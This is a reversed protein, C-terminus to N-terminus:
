LPTRAEAVVVVPVDARLDARRIAIQNANTIGDITFRAGYPIIVGVGAGGDRQYEIHWGGGPLPHPQTPGGNTDVAPWLYRPRDNYIFLARCPLDPFPVYAAGDETSTGPHALIEVQYFERAQNTDGDLKVPVPNEADVAQGGGTDGALKLFDSM